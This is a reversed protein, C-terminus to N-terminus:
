VKQIGGFWKEALGGIMPLPKCQGSSANIIGIICLVLSAVGVAILLPIGICIFFLPLCILNCIFSIIFLTLAQKGHYLSFANNKQVVVIIAVILGIMAVPIYSLIAMMRGSDVESQPIQSGATEPTPTADTM